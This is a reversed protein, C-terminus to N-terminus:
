DKVVAYEVFVVTVFYFEDITLITAVGMADDFADANNVTNVDVWLGFLVPENVVTNIVFVGIAFAFKVM